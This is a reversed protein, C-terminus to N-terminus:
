VCLSFFSLMCGSVVTQRYTMIACQLDAKFPIKTGKKGFGDDAQFPDAGIVPEKANGKKQGDRLSVEEYLSGGFLKNGRMNQVYALVGLAAAVGIMVLGLYLFIKLFGTNREEIMFPILKKAAEEQSYGCTDVLYSMMFSKEEDTMKSLFGEIQITTIGYNVTGTEDAFWADKEAIMQQLQQQKGSDKTRYGLFNIVNHYGQDNVFLDPIAYGKGEQDQYVPIEGANGDTSDTYFCGWAIDLQITVKDGSGLRSWDTDALQVPEKSMIMENVGGVAAFVAGILAVILVIKYIKKM